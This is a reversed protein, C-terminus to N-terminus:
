QLDKALTVLKNGRDGRPSELSHIKDGGRFCLNALSQGGLSMYIAMM